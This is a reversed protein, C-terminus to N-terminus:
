GCVSKVISQRSQLFCVQLTASRALRRGPRGVDSVPVSSFWFTCFLDVHPGPDSYQSLDLTTKIAEIIARKIQFSMSNFM